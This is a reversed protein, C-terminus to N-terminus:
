MGHAVFGGVRTVVELRRYPALCTQLDTNLHIFVWSGEGKFAKGGNESVRVGSEIITNSILLGRGQESGREGCLELLLCISVLLVDVVQLMGDVELCTADTSLSRRGHHGRRNALRNPPQAGLLTEVRRHNINMYM